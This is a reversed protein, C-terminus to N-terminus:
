WDLWYSFKVLFVDDARQGLLDSLNGRFNEQGEVSNFAQRGQSWVLFLASGPRYEWRFVVNSRFQMFNFGGPNNSVATDGYAIFRAGYDDARPNASLERVDSYTGKSVFPQAYLQLTATPTFTYNLRWTVGLEKQELHAFTSHLNGLSDQFNGFFQTNDTNRSYNVSLSTTFRSALKFDLEPSLSINHSRGDDGRFYNVFISPVISKRDDGVIGGWPAIWRDQRLAPGGRACRDCFTSGVAV